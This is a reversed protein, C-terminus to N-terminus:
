DRLLRWYTPCESEAEDWTTELDKIRSKAGALDGKKVIENTDLAITKFKSLDGLKTAAQATSIPSMSSFGISDAVFGLVAILILVTLKRM